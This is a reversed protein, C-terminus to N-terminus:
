DVVIISFNRGEGEGALNLSISEMEIDGVDASLDSSEIVFWGRALMSGGGPNFEIMITDRSLKLNKFTEELENREFSASIDHLGYEKSRFGSSEKANKFNTNDLIDGEINLEYEKAGVVEQLPLFAGDVTVAGSPAYDLTIIGFMYDIKSPLVPSGNDYVSVVTDKDWTNRSSDTIQYQNSGISTTAEGVFITPTGSKKISTLYSARSM